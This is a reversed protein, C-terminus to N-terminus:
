QRWAPVSGGDNARYTFSDAGYYDANPTYTFSGSANLVLSGHSPNSVPLATLTDGDGDTDNALLGPTAITLPVDEDTSYSDNNAVPADAIPRVTINVTAVGSEAAGDSVKYTFSDSGNFNTNPTHYVFRRREVGLTGRVPGSVLIATLATGETDSDNTLV